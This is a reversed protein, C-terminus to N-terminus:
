SIKLTTIKEMLQNIDRLLLLSRNLLPCTIKKKKKFSNFIELTVSKLVFDTSNLTTLVNVNSRNGLLEKLMILGEDQLIKRTNENFSTRNKM